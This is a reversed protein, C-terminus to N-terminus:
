GEDESKIPVSRLPPRILERSINAIGLVAISFLSLILTLTVLIHM